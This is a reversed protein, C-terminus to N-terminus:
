NAEDGAPVRLRVAGEDRGQDVQTLPCVDGASGVQHPEALPADRGRGSREQFRTSAHAISVLHAADLRNASPRRIDASAPEEPNDGCSLPTV